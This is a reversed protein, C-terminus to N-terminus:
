ESPQTKQENRWRELAADRFAKEDNQKANTLLIVFICFIGGVVFILLDSRGSDLLDLLSGKKEDSDGASETKRRASESNDNNAQNAKPAIGM